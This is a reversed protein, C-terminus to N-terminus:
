REGMLRYVTEHTHMAHGQGDSMSTSSLRVEVPEGAKFSVSVNGTWGEDHCHLLHGLAQRTRDSINEADPM